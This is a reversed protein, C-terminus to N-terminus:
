LIVWGLDVGLIKAVSIPGPTPPIFSHTVALGALLPIGYYLLSNKTNRALSYIIPILIVLAVDLFVPISVIFGTLVLAWQAKAEGFKDILTRALREAGGSVELMRGFMAGLGIVIAVFGLTDSMGFQVSEIIKNVPMGSLLGLGFSTFLLAVFAQWKSRMVLFLILLISFVASAILWANSMNRGGM